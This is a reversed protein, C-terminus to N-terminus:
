QSVDSSEELKIGTHGREAFLDILDQAATALAEYRLAFINTPNVKLAVESAHAVCSAIVLELDSQLCADFQEFAPEAPIEVHVAKPKAKPEVKKPTAKPKVTKTEKAKAM